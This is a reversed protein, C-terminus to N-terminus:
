QVLNAINGHNDVKYKWINTTEKKIQVVRDKLHSVLYRHTLASPMM